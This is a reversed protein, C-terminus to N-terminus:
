LIILAISQKGTVFLENLINTSDVLEGVQANYDSELQNIEPTALFAVTGHAAPDPAAAAQYARGPHQGSLFLELWTLKIIIM